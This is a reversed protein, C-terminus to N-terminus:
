VRADTGGDIPGSGLIATANQVFLALSTSLIHFKVKHGEGWDLGAKDMEDRAADLLADLTDAGNEELTYPVSVAWTKRPKKREEPGDLKVRPLLRGCSECIPRDLREPDLSEPVLEPTALGFKKPPQWSLPDGEWLFKGKEYTIHVQNDTVNQHHRYCLPVLNGVEEGDPLRVWDFAGGMKARSFLHHAHDTLRTCHPVSCSPGVKFKEYGEGTLGEVNRSETPFLGM